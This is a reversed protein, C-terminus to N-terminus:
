VSFLLLDVSFNVLFPLMELYDEAFFGLEVADLFREVFSLDLSLSTERARAVSSFVFVISISSSCM